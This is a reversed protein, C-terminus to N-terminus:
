SICNLKESTEVCTSGTMDRKGRCEFSSYVNEVGRRYIRVM